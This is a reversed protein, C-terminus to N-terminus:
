CALRKSHPPKVGSKKVKKGAALLLFFAADLRRVGFPRAPCAAFAFRLCRHCGWSVDVAINGLIEGGWQLIRGLWAFLQPRVTAVAARAENPNAAPLEPFFQEPSNSTGERHTVFFHLPPYYWNQRHIFRPYGGFPGYVSNEM